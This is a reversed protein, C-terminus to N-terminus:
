HVAMVAAMPVIGMAGFWVVIFIRKINMINMELSVEIHHPVM